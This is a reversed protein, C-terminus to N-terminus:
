APHPQGALSRPACEPVVKLFAVSGRNGKARVFYAQCTDISVHSFTARFTGRTTTTVIKTRAGKASVTM